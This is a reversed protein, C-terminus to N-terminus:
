TFGRDQVASWESDIQMREFLLHVIALGPDSEYREFM